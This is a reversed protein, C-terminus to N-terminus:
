KAFELAVYSGGFFIDDHKKFMAKAIESRPLYYTNMVGQTTQGHEEMQFDEIQGVLGSKAVSFRIKGTAMRSFPGANRAQFAYEFKGITSMSTIVFSEFKLEYKDDAEQGMHPIEITRLGKFEILKKSPSFYMLGIGAFNGATGYTGPSAEFFAEREVRFSAWDIGPDKGFVSSTAALVLFVAVLYPKM